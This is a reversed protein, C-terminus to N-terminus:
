RRWRVYRKGRNPVRHFAMSLRYGAWSLLGLASFMLAVSQDLGM